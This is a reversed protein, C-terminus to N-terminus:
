VRKNSLASIRNPRRCCRSTSIRNSTESFPTIIPSSTTMAITSGSASRRKCYPHPPMLRPEAFVGELYENIIASEYITEGNHVLAPVKGYPSHALFRAPKHQLDVETYKFEIQKEKLILRTRHAYPCVRASFLELKNSM